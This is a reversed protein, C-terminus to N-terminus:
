RDYNRLRDNNFPKLFEDENWTIHWKFAIYKLEENDELVNNANEFLEPFGIIFHSMLIMGYHLSIGTLKKQDEINTAQGIQLASLGGSHAYSCLYSYVDRFVEKNFGAIEACDAWGKKYKWKGSRAQKKAKSDLGLFVDTSELQSILQDLKAKEAELKPMNEPRVVSFAQRDRLGGIEWVLHRFRKENITVSPDCYIYYFTLYTEFAARVIVTISSHDIYRQHHDCIISLPTGKSLYYLSGIHNFLKASLIDAGSLWQNSSDITIGRISDGVAYYLSMLKLYEEERGTHNLEIWGM